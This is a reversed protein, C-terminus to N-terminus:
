NVLQAHTYKARIEKTMEIVRTLRASDIGSDIRRPQGSHDFHGLLDARLIRMGLKYISSTNGLIYEVSRRSMLPLRAVMVSLRGSFRLATEVWIIASSCVAKSSISLPWARTPIRVPAPVANQAPMSKSM